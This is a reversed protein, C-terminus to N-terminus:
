KGSTCTNKNSKETCDQSAGTKKERMKCDETKRAAKKCCKNKTEM